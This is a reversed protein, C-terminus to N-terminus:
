TVKERRLKLLSTMTLTQSELCSAVHLCDKYPLDNPLAILSTGLSTNLGCSATFPNRPLTVSQAVQSRRQLQSQSVSMASVTVRLLYAHTHLVCWMYMSIACVKRIVTVQGLYGASGSEVLTVGAALCLRNVHNRAVPSAM